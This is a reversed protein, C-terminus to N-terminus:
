EENGAKAVQFHSLSETYGAIGRYLAEAVSQRYESKRLLSEERTNSLFGIEVLISPAKAGALVVFPAKKVHRDQVGPFTRRSLSYLSAQVRSAFEKSEEVKNSLAMTHLVNELEAISMQSTANERAAVELADKSNTLNRYYTEVGAIRSVPSSNAHISIFLDAKNDNAIETRGELPIFTDDSRTFVVEAGLRGEILRGLRKSVDLVLDKELLGHPGETGQDHGGHGPDIVIRGFKLGLARILTTNGTSSRRAPRATEAASTATRAVEPKPSETRSSAAKAVETRPAPEVAPPEPAKVPPLVPVGAIPPATVPPPTSISAAATTAPSTTAPTTTTSTPVPAASGPRLEIILRNPNSLQSTTAEVQGNLDVVIRTVDPTTEAVRIKSVLKDRLETSYLRRGEIHPRANLIDYYVREPNHLRDTRYEFTGSVEIAIRTTEPLSWHRVAVVSRTALRSSQAPLRSGLLAISIALTATLKM